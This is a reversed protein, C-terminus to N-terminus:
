AGRAVSRVAKMVTEVTLATLCRPEGLFCGDPCPGCYIGAHATRCPVLRPAFRALHGPGALLVSPVGMAEALTMITPAGGICMRCRALVAATERLTARGRLDIPSDSNSRRRVAPLAGVGRTQGLLVVRMGLEGQLAAALETFRADPWLVNPCLEDATVAALPAGPASAALAHAAFERDRDDLWVELHGDDTPVGLYDLLEAQLDVEHAATGQVPGATLLRNELRQALSSWWPSPAAGLRFAVRHPAGSAYALCLAAAQRPDAGHEWRPTLAIDTRDARLTPAIAAATRWLPVHDAPANGVASWDYEATHIADVFPCSELLERLAPPVVVALWGRAAARRLARLLPVTLLLEHAEGLQVVLLRSDPAVRPPPAAAPRPPSALDLLTPVVELAAVNRVWRPGGNVRPPVWPRAGLELVRELVPARRPQPVDRPAHCSRAVASGHATVALEELATMTGDLAFRTAVVDRAQSRLRERLAADNILRAVQRAGAAADGPPFLLATREDELVEAAGGTGTGVVIVGSAMAELQTIGFPEQWESPFLLVDHQHYVHPLQARPIPGVFTVARELAHRRVLARLRTAFGPDTDPDGVISLSLDRHGLDHVLLALMRVATAIGKLPDFRGVYLLRRCLRPPAANSPFTTARIGWPIVPGLIPGAGARQAIRRLFDSAFAAAGFALTTRPRVLGLRDSCRALAVRQAGRAGRWTRCWPDRDWQVPWTDFVYCCTAIGLEEALWAAALPLGSLNWCFVVDPRLEEYLRRLTRQNQTERWLVALGTPRNAFSLDLVRHVGAASAAGARGHFSTAVDVTHHRARMAEVWEACGIEYGGVHHPPYLNSVALLRM